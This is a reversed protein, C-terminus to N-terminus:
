TQGSGRMTFHDNKYLFPEFLPTKRVKDGMVMKYAILGVAFVDNRSYDITATAGNDLGAITEAVEPALNGAAGGPSTSGRTFELQLPGIEGFDALALGYSGTLFINDCKLDRHADGSRVLKNVADLIQVLYDLITAEELPEPPEAKCKELRTYLSGGSFFATVLFRTRPEMFESDLENYEPLTLADDEFMGLVNVHAISDRIEEQAVLNHWWTPEQQRYHFLVKLAVLTDTHDSLLGDLKCKALYVLANGGMGLLRVVEFDELSLSDLQLCSIRTKLRRARDRVQNCDLRAWEEETTTAHQVRTSGLVPTHAEIDGAWFPLEIEYKGIHLEKRLFMAELTDLAKLRGDVRKRLAESREGKPDTGPDLVVRFYHLLPAFAFPCSDELRCLLREVFPDEELGSDDDGGAVSSQLAIGLVFTSQNRLRNEFAQICAVALQVETSANASSMKGVTAVATEQTAWCFTAGIDQEDDLDSMKALLQAQFEGGQEVLEKADKMVGPMAASVVDLMETVTSIQEAPLAGRATLTSGLSALRSRTEAIQQTETSQEPELEREFELEPEPELELIIEPEPEPEPKLELQRLHQRKPKDDLYASVEANSSMTERLADIVLPHKIQISKIVTTWVFHQEEHAHLLEVVREVVLDSNEEGLTKIARVAEHIAKPMGSRDFGIRVLTSIVLENKVQLKGLSQIGAQHIYWPCAAALEPKAQDVLGAAVDDKPMRFKEIETLALDRLEECPHRLAEVMMGVSRTQSLRKTIRAGVGKTRDDRRSELMQDVRVSCAGSGDDLDLYFNAVQEFEDALLLETTMLLVERLWPNPTATFTKEFYALISDAARAETVCQKAGFFEQFTLHTSRYWDKEPDGDGDPDVETCMFLGRPENQLEIWAAQVHDVSVTSWDSEAILETIEFVQFDRQREVVHLYHGIKCLLADLTQAKVDAKPAKRKARGRGKSTTQKGPSVIAAAAKANRSGGRVMMQVGKEYLETRRDPLKHKDIIFVGIMLALLLPNSGMELLNVSRAQAEQFAKVNQMDSDFRRTLVDLQMQETLSQIQLFKWRSHKFYGEDFLSERSSVILRGSYSNGLMVGIYTAIEQLKKGAEDLGDFILCLNGDKFLRELEVYLSSRKGGCQHCIFELVLEPEHPLSAENKILWSSLQMVPVVYPVLAGLYGCLADRAYGCATRNLLTTKGCAAPGLIVDGPMLDTSTAAQKAEAFHVDAERNQSDSTSGLRDAYGVSDGYGHRRRIIILDSADSREYAAKMSDSWQKLTIVRLPVCQTETSVEEQTCPDSFSETEKIVTDLYGRLTASLHEVQAHQIGDQISQIADQRHAADMVVLQQRALARIEDPLGDFHDISFPEDVVPVVIQRSDPHFAAALLQRLPDGKRKLLPAEADPLMAVLAKVGNPVEPPLGGSPVRLESQLLHARVAGGERFAVFVGDVTGLGDVATEAAPEPEPATGPAAPPTAAAADPTSTLFLVVCGCSRVGEEMAATSRDQMANDYWVSKGRAKLRLSTTQTQDGGTAQAHSLFLDWVGPPNLPNEAAVPPQAGAAKRLIKTVMVDAEDEDRRYPIADINLIYEWETGKYKAMAKGHDFHSTRREEAEFVVIVRKEYQKAWRLEEQVFFRDLCTAYEGRVTPSFAPVSHPKKAGGGPRALSSRHAAADMSAAARHEPPVAEPLHAVGTDADADM